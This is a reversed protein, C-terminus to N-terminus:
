RGAIQRFYLQARFRCLGASQRRVQHAGHSRAGAVNQAAYMAQSSAPVGAGAMRAIAIAAAANVINFEGTDLAMPELTVSREGDSITAIFGEKNNPDLRTVVQADGEM